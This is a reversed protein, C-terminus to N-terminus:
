RQAHIVVRTCECLARRRDSANTTRSFERAPGPILLFGLSGLERGHATCAHGYRREEGRRGGRGVGRGFLDDGVEEDDAEGADGVGEVVGKVSLDLVEGHRARSARGNERRAM